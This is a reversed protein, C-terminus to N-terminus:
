ELDGFSVMAQLRQCCTLWLMLLRVPFCQKDRLWAALWGGGVAPSMESCLLREGAPPDTATGVGDGPGFHPTLTLQPRPM